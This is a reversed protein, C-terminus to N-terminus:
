FWHFGHSMVAILFFDAVILFRLCPRMGKNIDEISSEIRTLSENIHRISQELLSVKEELVTTVSIVGKDVDSKKKL